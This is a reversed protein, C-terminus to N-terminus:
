YTKKHEGFHFGANQRDTIRLDASQWEVFHCRVFYRRAMMEVNTCM